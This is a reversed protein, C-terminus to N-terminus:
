DWIPQYGTVHCFCRSRIPQKSSGTPEWLYRNRLCEALTSQLDALLIQLDGVPDSNGTFLPVCEAIQEELENVASVLDAPPELLHSFMFFSILLISVYDGKPM